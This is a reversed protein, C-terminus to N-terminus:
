KPSLLWYKQNKNKFLEEYISIYGSSAIRFHQQFAQEYVSAKRYHQPTEYHILANWIEKLPPIRFKWLSLQGEGLFPFFIRLWEMPVAIFSGLQGRGHYLVECSERFFVIGGPKCWKRCNALLKGIEEESLYMLLWNSFILDFAYEALDMNTVDDRIYDINTYQRNREKNKLIVNEEFDVVTVRRAKEAFHSTFRGIGAGLELVSLGELDPLVSFIQDKEAVNIHYWRPNTELSTGVAQTNAAKWYLYRMNKKIGM